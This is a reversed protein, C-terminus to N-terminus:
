RSYSDIEYGLDFGNEKMKECFAKYMARKKNHNQIDTGNLLNLRLRYDDDVTVGLIESEKLKKPVKRGDLECWVHTAPDGPEDCNRIAKRAEDLSQKVSDEILM